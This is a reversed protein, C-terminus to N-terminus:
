WSYRHTSYAIFWDRCSEGRSVGTCGGCVVIWERNWRGSSNGKRWSEQNNKHPLTTVLWHLSRIYLLLLIGDLFLRITIRYIRCDSKRRRIMQCYILRMLDMSGVTVWTRLIANLLWPELFKSTTVFRRGAEERFQYNSSAISTYDSDMDTDIGSDSAADGHHHM